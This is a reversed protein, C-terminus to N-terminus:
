NLPFHVRAKIVIPNLQTGLSALIRVLKLSIVTIIFVM